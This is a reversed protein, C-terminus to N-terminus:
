TRSNMEDYHNTLGRFEVKTPGRKKPSKFLSYFPGDIDKIFDKFVKQKIVARNYDEITM